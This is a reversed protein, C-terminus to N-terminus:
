LIALFDLFLDTIDGMGIYVGTVHRVGLQGQKNAEAPWDKGKGIQMYYVLFNICYTNGWPKSDRSKKKEKRLSFKFNSSIKKEGTFVQNKDNGMVKSLRWSSICDWFVSIFSFFFSFYVLWVEKRHTNTDSDRLHDLVPSFITELMGDGATAEALKGQSSGVLLLELCGNAVVAELSVFDIKM